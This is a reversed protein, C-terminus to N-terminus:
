CQSITCINAGLVTTLYEADPRDFTPQLAESQQIIWITCEKECTSEEESLGDKSGECVATTGDGMQALTTQMPRPGNCASM